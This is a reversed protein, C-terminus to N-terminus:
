KTQNQIWQENEEIVSSPADSNEDRWVQNGEDDFDPNHVEGKWADWENGLEILGNERLIQNHRTRSDVQEGAHANWYPEISDTLIAPAKPQRPPGKFVETLKGDVFRFKRRM